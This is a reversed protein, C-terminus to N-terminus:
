KSELALPQGRGTVTHDSKAFNQWKPYKKFNETFKHLPNEIIKFM